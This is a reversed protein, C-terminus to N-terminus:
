PNRLVWGVIPEPCILIAPVSIFWFLGMLLSFLFYRSLCPKEMPFTGLAFFWTGFIAGVMAAYLVAITIMISTEKSMQVVTAMSRYIGQVLVLSHIIIYVCFERSFVTAM